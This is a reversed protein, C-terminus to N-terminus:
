QQPAAPPLVPLGFARKVEGFTTDDYGIYGFWQDGAKWFMAPIAMQQGNDKLITDFRDVLSRGAEIAALRDPSSEVPPPLASSQADEAASGAYWDEFQSPDRTRALEAVMALEQPTSRPKGGADRRAYIVWRLDIGAAQLGARERAEFAFCTPCSRFTVIYLAPGQGHRSVYPSGELLLGLEDAHQTITFAHPPADNAADSAPPSIAQSIGAPAPAMDPPVIASSIGAPSPQQMPAAPPAEASTIRSPAGPHTGLWAFGFWLAVGGLLGGLLILTAQWSKM